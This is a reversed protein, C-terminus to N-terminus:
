MSKEEKQGDDSEYYVLKVVYFHRRRSFARLLVRFQLAFDFFLKERALNAVLGKGVGFGEGAEVGEAFFTQFSM